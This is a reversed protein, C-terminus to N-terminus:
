RDNTAPPTRGAFRHESYDVQLEDDLSRFWFSTGRVRTHVSLLLSPQGEVPVSYDMITRAETIEVAMVPSFTGANALEVRTIAGSPRHLRFTARMHEATRDEQAGPSLRFRYDATDGDEAVLECSAPIIQDKVSATGDNSRFAVRNRYDKLEKETPERGDKQLLKWSFPARVIPDYREVMSHKESRTTQTYAWGRPGDARFADLASQLEPPIAGLCAATFVLFLSCARFLMPLRSPSRRAAPSAIEM